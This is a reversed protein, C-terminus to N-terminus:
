EIKKDVLYRLKWPIKFKELKTWAKAETTAEIIVKGDFSFEYLQTTKDAM